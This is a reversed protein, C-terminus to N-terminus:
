GNSVAKGAERAEAPTMAPFFMRTGDRHVAPKTTSLGMRADIATKVAPPSAVGREGGAAAGRTAAVTETPRTRDTAPPRAISALQRALDLPTKPDRIISALEPALHPRAALSTRESAQEAQERADLRRSLDQVSSALQALVPDIAASTQVAAPQAAAKTAKVDKSSPPPEDGGGGGEGGDAPPMLAALATRCQTRTADDPAETMLKHLSAVIASLDVSPGAQPENKEEPMNGRVAALATVNWTAPNNTVAMNLYRILHRFTPSGPDADVDYAPSFYRLGPPQQELQAQAFPSWRVDVAWLEGDRGELRHWGMAVRAEPPATDSLSLHDIDISYLNGRQEQSALVAAIADPTVIVPGKDTDNRGARWIRFATPAKGEAPREVGDHGLLDGIM